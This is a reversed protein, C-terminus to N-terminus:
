KHKNNIYKSKKTEKQGWRSKRKVKKEDYFAMTMPINLVTQGNVKVEDKFVKNNNNTKQEEKEYNQKKQFDEPPGLAIM